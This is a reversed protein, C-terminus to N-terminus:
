RRVFEKGVYNVVSELMNLSEGDDDALLFKSVGMQLCEELQEKDIAQVVLRSKVTPGPVDLYSLEECLSVVNHSEVSSDASLLVHSCGGTADIINAIESAVMIPDDTYCKAGFIGLSTRHKGYDAMVKCMISALKDDATQEKNYELCINVCDINANGQILEDFSLRDYLSPPVHLFWTDGGSPKIIDRKQPILPPLLSGSLGLSRATDVIVKPSKDNEGNMGFLFGHIKNEDHIPVYQGSQSDYYTETDNRTSNQRRNFFEKIVSESLNQRMFM